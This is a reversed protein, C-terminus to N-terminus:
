LCIFIPSFHMKQQRRRLHKVIQRKSIKFQNEGFKGLVRFPTQYIHEVTERIIRPLIDKVNNEGQIRMKIFKNIKKSARNILKPAQYTLENIAKVRQESKNKIQKDKQKQKSTVNNKINAM